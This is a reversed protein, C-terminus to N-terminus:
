YIFYIFQEYETTSFSLAMSWASQLPTTRDRWTHQDMLTRFSNERIGFKYLFDGVPVRNYWSRCESNVLIGQEEGLCFVTKNFISGCLYTELADM